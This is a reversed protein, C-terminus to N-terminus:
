CEFGPEGTPRDPAPDPVHAPPTERIHKALIGYCECTRRELEQRQLIIASGRRSAVAGARKLNNTIANITPRRGGIAQALEEHTLRIEPLGSRDHMALLWRCLRQELSHFRHCVATQTFQTICVAAYALLRRRLPESTHFAQDLLHAPMRWVTGAHQVTAHGRSAAQGSVIPMGLYGEQGIMGIEVKCGDGITGFLSLVAQVPFYAYATPEHTTEVITGRALSVLEMSACLLRRDTQSLSGLIRNDPRSDTGFADSQAYKISDVDQNM